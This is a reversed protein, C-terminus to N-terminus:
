AAYIRVSRCPMVMRIWRRTTSTTTGNRIPASRRITKRPRWVLPAGSRWRGMLKAAILEQEEPTKGHERLFDRFKGVHEELRRYAMYSGNRSLIAPQPLNVPPGEEDPYGLIFEGPKLPAGSGPHAGRRHRRHSTPFGIATASTITRMTSRPLQMWIWHHFFKLARPAPSIAQHERTVRQREPVDRAFLIAVAHLRPSALGGIWRDPHNLGTDGLVQARAVMGQRFEEPFTALSASGSRARWPRGLHFGGFGVTKRERHSASAEQASAVKDLIGALWNARAGARPVVPITGGLSRPCM